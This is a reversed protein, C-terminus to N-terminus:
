KNKEIMDLLRCVIAAAEARTLHDNPRFNGLDDGIMIGAENAKKIYPGYWKTYDVDPFKKEEM